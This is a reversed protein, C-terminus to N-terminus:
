VRSSGLSARAAPSCGEPLPVGALCSAHPGRRQTTYEPDLAARQPRGAGRRAQEPRLCGAPITACLTSGWGGRGRQEGQHAHLRGPASGSLRPAPPRQRAARAPPAHGGSGCPCPARCPRALRALRGRGRAPANAPRARERAQDAPRGSCQALQCGRQSHSHSRTHPVHQTQRATSHAARRGAAATRCGASVRCRDHVAPRRRQGPNQLLHHRRARRRRAVGARPAPLTRARQAQALHCTLSQSSGRHLLNGSQMQRGHGQPHLLWLQQGPLTQAQAASQRRLTAAAPAVVAAVAAEHSQARQLAAAPLRGPDALAAAAHEAAAAGQRAQGVQWCRPPPGHPVALQTSSRWSPSSCVTTGSRSQTTPCAGPHPRNPGLGARKAWCCTM